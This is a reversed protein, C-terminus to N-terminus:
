GIQAQWLRVKLGGHPVPPGPPDFPLGTARAMAEDACIVGVRWGAFREALVRGLSAYLPRLAKAKGIRGGYPPNVIVLGPGDCPPAIDSVAARHFRVAAGLGAREANRAAMAVAGQDRDSGFFIPPPTRPAEGAKLAAFADPDFSALQEFAFGRARGPWLGAAIAAAEIPLTGSGCMPDHVPITGDFGCARLFAAALTERLPAPNLEKALGRKHLSEGTTDVSVTCLDREIRLKVALGPGRGSIVPVSAATLADAIRQRAAGEHWIRSGRSSAEVRVPVGPAFWDSWPLRRARRDLQALHVARFAALRALVRVTCRLRLNAAWVDRWGGAVQVGGPVTGQVALGIERAEEAAIPELGPPCVLFIELPATM